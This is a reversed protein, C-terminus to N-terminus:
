SDGEKTSARVVLEPPILLHEPEGGAIRRALQAVARRALEQYPQRVTSLPPWFCEVGVADDFGIVAVEQPIRQGREHLRRMVGLALQDNSAFIGDVEPSIDAALQYGDSADWSPSSLKLYDIGAEQCARVFGDRRAVADSWDRPGCVHLLRTRGSEILHKTALEAGLPQDVGVSPVAAPLGNPQGLFVVPLGSSALEALRNSDQHGGLLIVGDVGIPVIRNMSIQEGPRHVSVSSHYGLEGLETVLELFTRAQGHFLRTSHIIQVVNTRNQSLSRAALNPRYGLTEIAEAVRRRTEEAVVQQNRVVRSVTQSSVGAARAVDALSVRHGSKESM